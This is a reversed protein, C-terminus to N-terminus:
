TSHRDQLSKLHDQRTTTTTTTTAKTTTKTKNECAM